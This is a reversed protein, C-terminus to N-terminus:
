PTKQVDSVWYADDVVHLKAHIKTGDPPLQEVKAGRVTYDMTMAEMFGKIEEHDIKLSNDGRDRSVIKGRLDYVKQGAADIPKQTQSKGCTVLSVALLAILVHKM